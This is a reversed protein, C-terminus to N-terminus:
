LKSSLGTNVCNKTCHIAGIMNREIDNYCDILYMCANTTFANVLGLSNPNRLFSPIFILIFIKTFYEGQRYYTNYFDEHTASITQSKPVMEFGSAM